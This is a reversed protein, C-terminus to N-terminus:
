SPHAFCSWCGDLGYSVDVEFSVACLIRPLQSFFGPICLCFVLLFSALFLSFLFSVFGDDLTPRQERIQKSPSNKTIM